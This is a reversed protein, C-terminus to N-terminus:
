WGVAGLPGVVSLAGLFDEVRTPGPPDDGVEQEDGIRLPLAADPEMQGRGFWGAEGVTRVLWGVALRGDEAYVALGRVGGTGNGRYYHLVGSSGVLTFDPPHAATLLDAPDGKRWRGDAVEAFVAPGGERLLRKADLGSDWTLKGDIEIRMVPGSSAAPDPPPYEWASVLLATPVAVMGVCVAYGVASPLVGRVWTRWRRGVRVEEERVLM